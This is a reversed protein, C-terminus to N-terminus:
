KKNQERYVSKKEQRISGIGKRAKRPSGRDPFCFQYKNRKNIKIHKRRDM